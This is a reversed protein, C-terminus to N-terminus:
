WTVTMRLGPGPDLNLTGTVAEDEATFALALGAVGLAFGGVFAITATGGLTRAQDNLDAGEPSCYGEFHGETACHDDAESRKAQAVAGLVAGAVIGASGLAVLGWGGVARLSVPEPPDEGPEALVMVVEATERAEVSVHRVTPQRGTKEAVVTHRGPDVRVVTQRGVDRLLEGDLSVRVNPEAVSIELRGVLRDLDDVIRRLEAERSPDAGPHALYREYTVVAEAHRGVYRLSTGINLLLKPSDYLEYATRFKLLAAGFDGEGALRNGETLLEQAKHKLADSPAASSTVSLVMLVLTTAALSLVRALM